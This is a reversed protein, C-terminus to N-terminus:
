QQGWSYVTHGWCLFPATIRKYPMPSRLEVFYGNTKQIFNCVSCTISELCM